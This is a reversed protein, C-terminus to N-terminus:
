TPFVHCAVKHNAPGELEPIQQRCREEV